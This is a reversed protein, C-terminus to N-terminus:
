RELAQFLLRARDVQACNRGRHAAVDLRAVADDRGLGDGGLFEADLRAFGYDFSEPFTRLQHEHRRIKLGIPFIGM